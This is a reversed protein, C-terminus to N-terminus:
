GRRQNIYNVQIAQPVVTVQAPGQEYSDGDLELLAGAAGITIHAGDAAHQLEIAEAQELRGQLVCRLAKFLQWRSLEPIFIGRLSAHTRDATPHVCFGGGLYRGLAVFQGQDWSSQRPIRSRNARPGFLYRLLAVFYSLAGLQYKMWRPQLTMVDVSLGTGVHNVFYRSSQPTQVLGLAEWRCNPVPQELRWRWHQLGHDRAFDNGTGVGIVTLSVAASRQSALLANVAINVTGDGGIAVCEHATSLLTVLQEHDVARDATSALQVVRNGQARFFDDYRQRYRRAKASLQNTYIVVVRDPM